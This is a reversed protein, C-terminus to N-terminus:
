AQRFPPLTRDYISHTLAVNFNKKSTRQCAKHYAALREKQAKRESTRAVDRFAKKTLFPKPGDWVGLKDSFFGVTDPKAVDHGLAFAVILNPHDRIIAVVENWEKEYGDIGLIDKAKEFTLKKKRVFSFGTLIQRYHDEVYPGEAHSNPSQPTNLIEKGKKEAHVFDLLMRDAEERAEIIDGLERFLADIDIDGAPLQEEAEHDRAIAEPEAEVGERPQGERGPM